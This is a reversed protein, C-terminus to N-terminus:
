SHLLAHPGTLTLQFCAGGSASTSYDLRAQNAHCLERAIYLGLGTGHESSTFFPRFLQPQFQEAIGPGDDIVAIIASRRLATVHLQVRASQKTHRGYKFANHVLITLIQHLHKPDVLAPAESTNIVTDLHDKEISMTQEYERAFRQVFAVSDIHEPTAQERRALSLVSEVIGNARQCHTQIIQLLRQNDQDIAIGPSEELLQAAYNIAALPNRIEHALSASFRGMASLTLSEARRSVVSANDLFILTLESDVLLRVFRPQIEPRDPALQLPPQEQQHDSRWRELQQLLQPALSLNVLSRNDSSGILAIATENALTVHDDADVVLVGTRMRRIILENIEALNAVQVGRRDALIQSRRAHQSIRHSIYASTMYSAAFMLLEALTNGSSKGNLASWLYELLIGASSIAAIGMGYRLPLLMAAAAINFLLMMAIGTGTNPLAHMALIAATIDAALSALLQTTPRRTSRSWWLLLPAVLLYGAAVAAALQRHRPEGVLLTLPGFILACILTAILVRYLAFLYIERQATPEITATFATTLSM